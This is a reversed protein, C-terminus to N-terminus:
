RSTNITHEANDRDMKNAPLSVPKRRTLHGELSHTTGSGRAVVRKPRAARRTTRTDPLPV